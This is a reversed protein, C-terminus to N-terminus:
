PRCSTLETNRGAPEAGKKGPPRLGPRKGVMGGATQDPCLRDSLRCDTVPRLVPVVNVPKGAAGSRKRAMRNKVLGECARSVRCWPGNERQVFPTELRAQSLRCTFHTGDSVKVDRSRGDCKPCGDSPEHCQLPFGAPNRSCRSWTASADVRHQGVHCWSRCAM